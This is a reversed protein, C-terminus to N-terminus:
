RSWSPWPRALRSDRLCWPAECRTSHRSLRLFSRPPEGEGDAFDVASDVDTFTRGAFLDPTHVTHGETELSEAWDRVQSTLGLASHLLIVTAM